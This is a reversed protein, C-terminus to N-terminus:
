GMVMHPNSDVQLLPTTNLLPFLPTCVIDSPNKVTRNKRKSTRFSVLVMTIEHAIRMSINNMGMMIKMANLKTRNNIVIKRSIM